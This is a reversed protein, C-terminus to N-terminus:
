LNEKDLFLSTLIAAILVAPVGMLMSFPGFPIITCATGISWIGLFRLFRTKTLKKKVLLYILLAPCASLALWLYSQIMQGVTLKDM